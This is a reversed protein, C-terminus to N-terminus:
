ILKIWLLHMKLYKVIYYTLLLINYIQFNLAILNNKLIYENHQILDYEKNGDFNFEIIKNYEELFDPFEFELTYARNEEEYGSKIKDEVSELIGNKNKIITVKM